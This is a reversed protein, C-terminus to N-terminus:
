VEYLSELNIKIDVETFSKVRLYLSNIKYLMKQKDLIELYHVFPLYQGKIALEYQAKIVNNKERFASYAANKNNITLGAESILRDFNDQMKSSAVKERSVSHIKVYNRGEKLISYQKIDKWVM